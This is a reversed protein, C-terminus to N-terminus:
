TFNRNSKNRQKTQHISLQQSQSRKPWPLSQRKISFSKVEIRLRNQKKMAGLKDIILKKSKMLVKLPQKKSIRYPHKKLTM